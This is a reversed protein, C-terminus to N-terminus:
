LRTSQEEARLTLDREVMAFHSAKIIKRKKPRAMASSLDLGADSDEDSEDDSGKKKSKSYIDQLAM